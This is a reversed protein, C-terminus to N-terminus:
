MARAALQAVENLLRQGHRRKLVADHRLGRSISQVVTSVAIHDNLFAIMLVSTYENCFQGVRRGDLSEPLPRRMNLGNLSLSPAAIALVAALISFILGRHEHGEAFGLNDVVSGATEGAASAAEGAALIAQLIV